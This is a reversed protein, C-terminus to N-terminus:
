RIRLSGTNIDGSGRKSKNLITVVGKLTIDGSGALEADVSGCGELFNVDIDGSGRLVLRTAAVNKQRIDLDGSGTLAADTYQADLQKIDLDGSGVVEANCRDCIISNFEINGSGKLQISLNDTDVPYRSIFDGSGSLTVGILDPGCVYIALDNDSNGFSVNFMGIKGRNRISLTSGDVETIINEVLEKPGKVLVSFSDAQDFYVTPSGNVQIREFGRLNRYESSKEGSLKVGLDRVSNGCSCSALVLAFVFFVINKM